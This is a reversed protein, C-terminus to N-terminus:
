VSAKSEAQKSFCIWHSRHTPTCGSDGLGLFYQSYQERIYTKNRLKKLHLEFSLAEKKTEFERIFIFKWPGRGKTSKNLVLTIVKLDNKWIQPIVTTGNDLRCHNSSILIIDWLPSHCDNLNGNLFDPHSSEFM